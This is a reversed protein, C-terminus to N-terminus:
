KAGGKPLDLIAASTTPLPATRLITSSTADERLTVVIPVTSGPPVKVGFAAAESVTKDKVTHGADRLTKWAPDEMIKKFAATAPGDARVILFYLTVPPDVKPPDVPKPPEIPPPRPAEGSDVDIPKRTADAEATAGVPVAILEVKGTGAAEVISIYKAPFTRLEPKGTGDIFRGFVTLPGAVKTVKVLGEPSAFTLFPADSSIVYLTDATLKPVAAPDVKPPPSPPSVVEPFKIAGVKPLPEAALAFSTFALLLAFAYPLRKM